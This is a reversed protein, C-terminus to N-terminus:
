PWRGEFLSLSTACAGSTSSTRLNAPLRGASGPAACPPPILGDEFQQSCQASSLSAETLADVYGRVYDVGHQSLRIGKAPPAVVATRGLGM